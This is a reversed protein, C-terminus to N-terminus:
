SYDKPVIARCYKGVSNMIDDKQHPLGINCIRVIESFFFPTRNTTVELQKYALELRFQTIETQNRM